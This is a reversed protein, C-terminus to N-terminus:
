IFDSRLEGSLFISGTVLIRDSIKTQKRTWALADAPAYFIDVPIRPFFERVLVAVNKPDAVKRFPNMTNRTCAVSAPRLHTLQRIMGKINKDNSFGVILHLRGLTSETAALHEMTAVAAKMKDRNHAGDLIIFPRTAVVEMRIPQVARALGKHIAAARLGLAEAIDIALCANKVQHRGLPRLTYSVSGYAFTMGRVTSRIDTVGKIPSRVLEVRQRVCEKKIVALVKKDKEATYVRCQPTIIGAKEWAIQAKTNGLVAMHDLGISTIVAAVKHPIVNTSDYRGGLGVEVVAWDIKKQAFYVLGIVTEVDFMSVMDYPSVRAYQDLADKIRGVIGAFDLESMPEGNIQWQERVHSPYPSIMLGTKKGEAALMSALYTAVSGKGSTGAVHIYQPIKQEPNGLIDLLFQVRRVFLAQDAKKRTAYKKRKGRTINNLSLLYQEAERFNM